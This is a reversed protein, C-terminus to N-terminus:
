IRRLRKSARESTLSLKENVGEGSNPEDVKKASEDAGMAVAFLRKLSQAENDTSAADANQLVAWDSLPSPPPSHM